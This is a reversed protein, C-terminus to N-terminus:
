RLRGGETVHGGRASIFQIVDGDRAMDYCDWQASPPWQSCYQDDEIRWYGGWSDGGGVHYLTRGSARFDQWGNDYELVAGGTLAVRIEEGGSLACVGGGRGDGGGRGHARVDGGIAM